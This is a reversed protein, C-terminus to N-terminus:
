DSDHDSGRYRDSQSDSTVRNALYEMYEFYDEDMDSSMDPRGDHSAKQRLISRTMRWAVPM